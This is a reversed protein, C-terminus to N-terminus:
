LMAQGGNVDLTAGTIFRAADSALFLIVEAVEEPAGLRGFPMAAAIERTAEPTRAKLVRPTAVTGPAVANVTIGDGAVERAVQRTFAIIGGKAAAYHAATLVNGTRGAISALSVIRGRRQRKMIPLVAKTAIFASTLNLRIIEDWEDDAIQEVTVIKFFGGANNVLVDIRGWRGAAADIARGVDAASTADCRLALTEAGAAVLKKEMADLGERDIDLAVVRAGERAAQEAVAGGIGVAAGTVVVVQDKFRM